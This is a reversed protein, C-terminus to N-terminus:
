VMGSYGAARGARQEVPHEVLDILKAGLAVPQLRALCQASSITRHRALGAAKGLADGSLRLSNQPQPSERIVIM